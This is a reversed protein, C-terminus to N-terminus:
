CDSRRFSVAALAIGITDLILDKATSVGESPIHAFNTETVFTALTRTAGM